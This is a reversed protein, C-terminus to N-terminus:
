SWLTQYFSQWMAEQFHDLWYAWAGCGVVQYECISHIAIDHM